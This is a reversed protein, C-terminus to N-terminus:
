QLSEVDATATRDDGSVEPNTPQQIDSLYKELRQKTLEAEHEVEATIIGGIAEIVIECFFKGGVTYFPVRTAFIADAEDMDFMINIRRKLEAEVAKLIKWEEDFSVTGDTKLSIAKLPKIIKEFDATLTKYRDLISLDSPRIFIDCIPKDFKNVLTYRKTGDDIAIKFLADNTPM